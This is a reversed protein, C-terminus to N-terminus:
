GLQAKFAEQAAAALSDAPTQPVDGTPKSAALAGNMLAEAAGETHMEMFADPHFGAFADLHFGGFDHPESGALLAHPSTSSLHSQRAADAAAAAKAEAAIYASLTGQGCHEEIWRSVYQTSLIGWNFCAKIWDSLKTTVSVKNSTAIVTTSAQLNKPTGVMLAVEYTYDGLPPEFDFYRGKKQIPWVNSPQTSGTEGPFPTPSPLITRTGDASIRTIRLGQAGKVAGGSIKWTVLSAMNCAAARVTISTSM